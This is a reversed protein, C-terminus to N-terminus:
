CPIMSQILQLSPDNREDQLFSEQMGQIREKLAEDELLSQLQDVLTGTEVQAFDTTYGIRHHRVREANEEQERTIPYMMLPVGFYVCEKLTGLGGAVVAASAFSLIEIQPAWDLVTVNEPYDKLLHKLSKQGTALVLHWDKAWPSRAVETLKSYFFQAEEPFMRTQSGMAAYIIKKDQPLMGRMLQLAEEDKSRIGPGLYHMNGQYRDGEFDLSRPCATLEPMMEIPTLWDRLSSLDLGLSHAWTLVEDMVRGPLEMIRSSCFRAPSNELTRLHTNFIIHPIKFKYYLLLADFSLFYSTIFLSPELEAVVDDLQGRIIALHHVNDEVSAREIYGPPYEEEFVRRYEFGQKEIMSEADAPALYIVRHGAETLTRALGLSPILHSKYLDM